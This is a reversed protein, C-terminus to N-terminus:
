GGVGNTWVVGVESVSCEFRICGTIKIMIISEGSM